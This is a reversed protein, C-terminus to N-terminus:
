NCAAPSVGVSSLVSAATVSSGSPWPKRMLLDASVSRAWTGPTSSAPNRLIAPSASFFQGTELTSLAVIVKSAFSTQSPQASVVVVDDRRFGTNAGPKLRRADSPGADNMLM